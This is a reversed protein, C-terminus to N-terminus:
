TSSMIDEAERSTSYMFAIVDDEYDDAEKYQLLENFLQDIIKQQKRIVDSQAAIIDAIM